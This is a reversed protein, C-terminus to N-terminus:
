DGANLRWHEDTTDGERDAYLGYAQNAIATWSFRQEATRRARLGIAQRLTADALLAITAAAFSAAVERIVCNLGDELGLGRCGAPTAVVAKGCAMAELVKINTGASVLLPALVVWAQAYLPRLDSVFPLLDIRSDLVGTWYRQPETGAVVRLRAQPFRAWIAPMIESLLIEFALVNPHHRFAGVFLLEPVAASGDQPQFRETDVGNPVVLTCDESAGMEVAALRDEECMTWVADYKSFCSKEHHAWKEAERADITEGSREAIARYLPFTVDHEVWIAPIDPAADRIGGLQTYEVQLFDPREREAIDAVLAHLTQTDYETVRAPLPSDTLARNDRDVVYVQRFVEHLKAYDVFENQERFCVLLFDLRDSLERCLNFIRVAGGHSLPFPLYPSALLVKRRGTCAGKHLNSFAINGQSLHPEQPALRAIKPNALLGAVFETEEAPWASTKTLQESGGVAYSRWGAAAARWFLTFWAACGNRHKPIGLRLLKERDVLMMRGIPALVQSVEEPQLQRFPTRAILTSEWLRFDMQRSVVFTRPDNFLPLLDDLPTDNKDPKDHCFLLWRCDTSEAIATVRRWDWGKLHNPIRLVGGGTGPRPVLNLKRRGKFKKFVLASLSPRLHAARSFLWPLLVHRHIQKLRKRQAPLRSRAHAFILAPRASFFDDNENKVLVRFWPILFATLKVLWDGPDNDWATVALAVQYPWLIKQAAMFLKLPNPEVIVRECTAETEPFPLRTTFLFVPIGPESERVYQVARHCDLLSVGFVAMVKGSTKGIAKLIQSKLISGVELWV